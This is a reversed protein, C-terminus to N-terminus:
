PHEHFFSSGIGESLAAWDDIPLEIGVVSCPPLTGFYEGCLKEVTKSFTPNHGFLFVTEWKNDLESIIKFIQSVGAHYIEDKEIIEDIPFEIEKVILKATTIARNATSAVVADPYIANAFLLRGMKPADKKGKPSLDRDFDRQNGKSWAAEAHRIIFVKKGM